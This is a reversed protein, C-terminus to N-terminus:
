HFPQSRREFQQATKRLRAQHEGTARRHLKV